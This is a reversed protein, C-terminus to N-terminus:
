REHWPGIRAIANLLQASTIRSEFVHGCQPCPNQVGDCLCHLSGWHYGCSACTRGFHWSEDGDPEPFDFECACEVPWAYLVGANWWGSLRNIEGTSVDIFATREHICV